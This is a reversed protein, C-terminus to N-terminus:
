QHFVVTVSLAPSLSSPLIIISNTSKPKKKDITNLGHLNLIEGAPLSNQGLRLKINIQLYIIKHGLDYYIMPLFVLTLQKHMFFTHTRRMFCLLQVGFKIAEYNHAAMEITFKASAGNAVYHSSM